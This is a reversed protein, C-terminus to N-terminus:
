YWMWQNFDELFDWPEIYPTEAKKTTADYYDTFADQYSARFEVMASRIAIIEAESKSQALKRRLGRLTAGDVIMEDFAAKTQPNTGDTVAIAPMYSYVITITGTYKPKWHLVTKTEEVIFYYGVKGDYMFNEKTYIEPVPRLSNPDIVEGATSTWAQTHWKMFEEQTLEASYLINDDVDSFSIEIPTFFDSPMDLEQYDQTYTIDQIWASNYDTTKIMTLVATLTQGDKEAIGCGFTLIEQIFTPSTFSLTQNYLVTGSQNTVTLNLTAFNSVPPTGNGGVTVNINSISTLGVMNVTGTDVDTIYIQTGVTDLLFGTFTLGTILAADKFDEVTDYTEAIDYRQVKRPFETKAFIKKLTDTIDAKVVKIVNVSEKEIGLNTLVRDKLEQYNM